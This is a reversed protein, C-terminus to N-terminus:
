IRVLLITNVQMLYQAVQQTPRESQTVEVANSVLNPLFRHVTSVERYFIDHPSLEESVYAEPKLCKEIISDVIDAYRFLFEENFM